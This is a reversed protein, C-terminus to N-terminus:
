DELLHLVWQAFLHLGVFIVGCVLYQVGPRDVGGLLPGLFGLGAVALGFANLTTAFLKL